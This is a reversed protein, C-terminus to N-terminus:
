HARKNWREILSKRGYEAYMGPFQVGCTLCNMYWIDEGRHWGTGAKRDVNLGMDTGGCFPCPLLKPEKQM